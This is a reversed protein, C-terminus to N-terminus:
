PIRGGEGLVVFPGWYAPHATPYATDQLGLWCLWGCEGPTELVAVMSQRLAEARRLSRNARLQSFLGTMLQETTHSEVPWHSALVSHTGAMFFARSLASLGQHTEEQALTGTNCASLLVWDADLQLTAIESSSLYGDDDPSAQPPPTLVLGAEHPQTSDDSDGPLLAHTAFSIVRARKLEGQQNLQKLRTETANAALYVSTQPNADLLHAIAQIETATDPLRPLNDRLLAPTALFEVGGRRTDTDMGRFLSALQLKDGALLPDGFGVFPNREHAQAQPNSADTLRLDALSHVAPLYSFAYHRALWDASAYDHDSAVGNVTPQTKVLLHLPLNQLSGDLVAIIHRVGALEAAAPALLQQYLGHALPLNFPKQPDHLASQLGDTPNFLAQQLVDRNVELEHLAPPQHPRIVLLVSKGPAVAAEVWVLLAEDAQLLAQAQELPLPNPHALRTYVPFAKTLQQEQQQITQRTQQMDRQLRETDTAAQPTPNALSAAYQKDLTQLRTQQDWLTQLQTRITPQDAALRLAIQRFAELRTTGHALQAALFAQPLAQAPQLQGNGLGHRLIALHARATAQKAQAQERDADATAYADYEAYAAHIHELAQPIRQNLRDLTALGELSNARSGPHSPPLPNDSAALNQEFYGRAEDYQGTMAYAQGLSNLAIPLQLKHLRAELALGTLPATETQAEALMQKLPPIAQAAKGAQLYQFAQAGPTTAAPPPDLQQRLTNAQETNGQEQYADALGRLIPNFDEPPISARVKELLHRSEDLLRSADAQRGQAHYISGLDKQKAALMFEYTHIQTQLTAAVNTSDPQKALLDAAQQQTALAKQAQTVAQEQFTQAQNWQNNHRAELAQAADIQAQNQYANALHLTTSFLDDTRKPTDASAQLTQLLNEAQQRASHNLEQAQTYHAQLLEQHAQRSLQFIAALPNAEPEAARLLAPNWLYGLGALLLCTLHRHYRARPNATPTM